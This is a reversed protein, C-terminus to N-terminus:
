YYFKEDPIKGGIDEPSFDFMTKMYDNVLDKSQNSDTYKINCRPIAEQATVADMGIKFKEVLKAADGINSNVWQISEKYKELFATIAEPNSKALDANIVLCSMPLSQGNRVKAWEKGFDFALNVNSNKTLVMTVFPEPLIALDAKGSIMLQSLEVQEVSYDLNVDTVPDINNKKLLYRFVVDPTSGKSIVNIKKGKLSEWSTIKNGQSLVYLVNEGVIAALKLNLGKNYLKAAVNTPLTAIDVEKSLIKSIMIDPSAVIEYNTTISEGLSPHDEHMKIMGISTPGKLSAINIIIGPKSDSNITAIDSTVTEEDKIMSSGTQPNATEKNSCMLLFPLCVLLVLIFVVPMLKKYINKINVHM